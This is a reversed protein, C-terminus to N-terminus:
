YKYKNVVIKSYSICNETGDDDNPRNYKVMNSYKCQLISCADPVASLLLLPGPKKRGDTQIEFWLDFLNELFHLSNHLMILDLVSIIGIGRFIYLFIMFMSNTDSFFFWVEMWVRSRGFLYLFLLYRIPFIYFMLSEFHIRDNSMRIYGVKKSRSSMQVVYADYTSFIYM